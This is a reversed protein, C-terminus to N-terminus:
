PKMDKGQIGGAKLLRIAYEACMFASALIYPNDGM